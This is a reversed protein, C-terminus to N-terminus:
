CGCFNMLAFRSPWCTPASRTPSDARGRGAPSAAFGVGEGALVGRDVAAARGTDRCRAFRRRFHGCRAGRVHCPQRPHLWATAFGGARCADALLEAMERRTTRIAILGESASLVGGALPYVTAAVNSSLPRGAAALLREEENATVPLTWASDPAFWRPLERRFRVAAEHWYVRVVGPLPHGSRPEGECWSGLLALWRALPIAAVLPARGAAASYQGPYAQALVVGHPAISNGNIGALAAEM